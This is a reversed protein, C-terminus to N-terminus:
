SLKNQYRVKTQFTPYTGLIRALMRHWYEFQYIYQFESLPMERGLRFVDSFYSIGIFNFFVQCYVKQFKASFVLTVRLIKYAQYEPFQKYRNFEATWEEEGIPPLHGLPKWEVQLFLPAFVHTSQNHMILM